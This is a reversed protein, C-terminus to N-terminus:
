WIDREVATLPRTFTVLDGIEGTKVEESTVGIKEGLFSSLDFLVSFVGISGTITTPRAVITDCAMALYYGGSAAYDGMSAIVPKQKTALRIERWMMDAAQFAGGPSNVRLVIAKVNDNNRAKRIEDVITKSGVVGQR